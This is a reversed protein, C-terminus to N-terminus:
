GVVEFEDVEPIIALSSHIPSDYTGHLQNADDIYEVTMISGSPVQYFPVNPLQEDNMKHLLIRSGIKIETPVNNIKVIIKEKM